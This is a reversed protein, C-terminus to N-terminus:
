ASARGRHHRRPRNPSRRCLTRSKRILGRPELKDLLVPTVDPVAVSSSPPSISHASPLRIIAATSAPRQVAAPDSRLSRITPRGIGEASRLSRWLGLLEARLTDFHRDTGALKTQMVPDDSCHNDLVLTQWLSRLGRSPRHASRMTMPQTCDTDSSFRRWSCSTM